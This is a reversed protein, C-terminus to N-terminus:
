TLNKLADLWNPSAVIAQKALEQVAAEGQLASPDDTPAQKEFVGPETFACVGCRRAPSVTDLPSGCLRCFFLAGCSTDVIASWLAAAEDRSTTATATLRSGVGRVVAAARSRRYARQIKRAAVENSRLVKYRFATQITAAAEHQQRLEDRAAHGRWCSQITVIAGRKGQSERQARMRRFNRQLQLVAAMEREDHGMTLLALKQRLEDIDERLDRSVGVTAMVFHQLHDLSEEDEAYAKREGLSITYTQMMKAMCEDFTSRLGEFEAKVVGIAQEEFIQQLEKRGHKKSLEAQYAQFAEDVMQVWERQDQRTPAYFQYTGEEEGKAKIQFRFNKKEADAWVAEIDSVQIRGKRKKSSGVHHESKYWDLRRKEYVFWYTKKQKRVDLTKAARASRKGSAAPDIRRTDLPGAKRRNKEAVNVTAAKFESAQRAPPPPAPEPEPEPEPEPQLKGANALPNRRGLRKPM